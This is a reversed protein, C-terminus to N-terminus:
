PAPVPSGSPGGPGVGPCRGPRGQAGTGAEWAGGGSEGANAACLGRRPLRVGERVAWRARQQLGGSLRHQGFGLHPAWGAWAWPGQSGPIVAWGPPLFALPPLGPRPRGRAESDGLAPDEGRPLGPLVSPAAILVLLSRTDGARCALTWTRPQKRARTHSHTQSLNELLPGTAEM